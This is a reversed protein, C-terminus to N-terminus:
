QRIYADQARPLKPNLSYIDDDTTASDLKNVTSDRFEITGAGLLVNQGANSGHNDSNKGAGKKDAALATVGDNASHGPDYGYSCRSPTLFEGQAPLRENVTPTIKQLDGLWVPSSPCSFVRPDQIYGKYLLNWTLMPNNDAFPDAKTGTTPFFGNNAPVDAYMYMAKAIQSLNGACVSRRASERHSTVTPMLIAALIAILVIVTLLELLTFGSHRPRRM